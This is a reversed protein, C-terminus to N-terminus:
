WLDGDRFDCTLSADLDIGDSDAVGFVLVSGEDDPTPVVGDPTFARLRGRWPQWHRSEYFPLGIETASLVGLDYARTTAAEVANLLQDGVGERRHDAHVAVAEVYGARLGRGRHLLHRQVLAAHGIITSRDRAIAHLGGLGHGWDDDTFESEFAAFTMARAAELTRPDLDAAHTLSVDM